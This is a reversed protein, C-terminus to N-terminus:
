FSTRVSVACGARGCTGAATTSGTEAARDDDFFWLVVGTGLLAAGGFLLADTARVLRRAERRRRGLRFGATCTDNPCNSELTDVRDRAFVSTVIGAAVMAAGTGGVAWQWPSLDRGRDDTRRKSGETRRKPGETKSGDTPRSAGAQERDRAEEEARRRQLTREMAELRAELKERLRVERGGELYRRLADVAEDLLGADRYAIYMNYLLANKGSLEYARAFERAADRFRGEAYLTRGIRFRSRAERDPIPETAEEHREMEARGAPPGQRAGSEEQARSTAGEEGEAQADTGPPATVSICAFVLM